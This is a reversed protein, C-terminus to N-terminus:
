AVTVTDGRAIEPPARLLGPRLIEKERFSRQPLKGAACDLSECAPAAFPSVNAQELRLQLATIPAGAKIASAAVVQQRTLLARFRVWFSASRTASYRIRGRWLLPRSPDSPPPLVIGTAALELRGPPVPARFFDVLKLRPSTRIAALIEESTLLRTARDICVEHLQTAPLGHKRAIRRLDALTLTRTIGPNPSYTITETAALAAFAPLSTALNGATISDGGAEICGARLLSVALILLAGPRM